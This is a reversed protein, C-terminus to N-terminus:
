LVLAPTFRGEDGTVKTSAASIERHIQSVRTPTIGFAEAIARSSEGSQKRAFIEGRQLDSVKARPNAQGRYSRRDGINGAPTDWRLNELCSNGRNGDRHCGHYGPPREGVFAELVLVHVRFQKREKGLSVVLYGAYNKAVKMLSQGNHGRYALSRVRGRNSVEYRGAYGKM